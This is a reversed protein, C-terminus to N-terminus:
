AETLIKELGPNGKAHRLATHGWENKRNVDTGAKVLTKAVELHRNLAALILPTHRAFVNQDNPDAGMELLVKVAEDHGKGAAMLLPTWGSPAKYNPNAGSRLLIEVDESIGREAAKLLAANFGATGVDERYKNVLDIAKALEQDAENSSIAAQEKKLPPAEATEKELNALKPYHQWNEKVSTIFNSKDDATEFLARIGGLAQKKSM